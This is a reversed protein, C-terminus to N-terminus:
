LLILMAAVAAGAAGTSWRTPEGATNTKFAATATGTPTPIGSRVNTANKAGPIGSTGNVIELINSTTSGFAAQALAIENNDLDFVVYASRLFSDGLIYPGEAPAIDMDFFCIGSGLANIAKQGTPARIFEHVPVSIVKGSFNFDVTGKSNAVKCPITTVGLDLDQKAGFGTWMDKAIASPLACSTSGSDLLVQDPLLYTDTAPSLGDPKITVSDLTVWLYVFAGQSNYPVVPVTQLEGSYKNTDVGGFLISGTQTGLDNLYISYAPAQILGQAVMQYPTNPYLSVRYKRQSENNVYGIGWVSQKSTSRYAVGVQLSQVTTRGIHVDDTVFDGYVYTKDGYTINLLSNVYSSSTSTNTDYTGSVICNTTQACFTSRDSNMWFDSSGTDIQM